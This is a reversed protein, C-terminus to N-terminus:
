SSGKPRLVNEGFFPRHCRPHRRREQKQRLRPTLTAAPHVSLTPGDAPADLGKPRRQRPSATHATQAKCRCGGCSTARHWRPRCTTIPQAPQTRPTSRVPTNRFSCSRQPSRAARHCSLDAKGTTLKNARRGCNPYAAAGLSPSDFSINLATQQFRKSSGKLGFRKKGQLFPPPM